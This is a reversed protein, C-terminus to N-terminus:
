EGSASEQIFFLISEINNVQLKKLIAAVLSTFTKRDTENYRFEYNEIQILMM